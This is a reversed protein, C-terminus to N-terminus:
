EGRLHTNVCVIREELDGIRVEYAAQIGCIQEQADVLKNLKIWIKKELEKSKAQIGALDTTDLVSFNTREKEM